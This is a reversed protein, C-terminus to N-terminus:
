QTGSSLCMLIALPIASFCVSCRFHIERLPEDLLNCGQLIYGIIIDWLFRSCGRLILEDTVITSVCLIWPPEFDSDAHGMHIGQHEWEICKQQRVFSLRACGATDLCCALIRSAGPAFTAVIALIRSAGPAFTAVILLAAPTSTAALGQADIHTGAPQFSLAPPEFTGLM